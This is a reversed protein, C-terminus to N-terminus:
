PPGTHKDGVREGDKTWWWEKVKVMSNPPGATSAAEVKVSSGPPFSGLITLETGTRGSGTVTATPPAPPPPQIVDIKPYSAPTDISQTYEIHLDNAGVPPNTFTGISHSRDNEGTSISDSLTTLAAVPGLIKDGVRAGDKTWWWEKVKVMSNPPGATSSVTVTVSSGPPFSGEITLETGTRGSGTVKAAPPAPPPPQTVNIKPPRAPTDISQTYVIHLDNAGVPPNTFTGILRSRDNEGTPPLPAKESVKVHGDLFGIIILDKSGHRMDLDAEVGAVNAIGTSTTVKGDCTVWKTTPYDWMGLAVGSLEDNYVYGNAAKAGTPCRLVGRDLNIAGWVASSVPLEEDNDQAPMTIAIVIQRQNSTCTAMRAKERAKAFVPFLIAALIAIIAIVVLLEILTFGRKMTM